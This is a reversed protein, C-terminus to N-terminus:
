SDMGAVARSHGSFSQVRTIIWAEARVNKEAGKESIIGLDQASPQSVYM